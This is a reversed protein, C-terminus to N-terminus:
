GCSNSFISIGTRNPFCYDNGIELQRNGISFDSIPLQWDAIIM